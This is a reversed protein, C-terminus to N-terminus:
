GHRLAEPRGERMVRRGRYHRLSVSGGNVARLTFDPAASGPPLGDRRIRSASLSRLRMAGGRGAAQRALAPVEQSGLARPSAVRGEEDVLYAAPTGIPGFAEVPRGDTLLIPCELRHARALRRNAEVDGSAVLVLEMNRKRLAGHLKALDGAIRECFGCAPSWNVLLVRRGRLDDLRIREGDLDRLGFPPLAVGLALEDPTEQAVEGGCAGSDDAPGLREEVSELRM